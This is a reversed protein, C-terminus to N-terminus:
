KKIDAALGPVDEGLFHNQDKFTRATAGPLAERYRLMHDFPVVFDDESHYLIIEGAQKAFRELGDTRAFSHLPERPMGTDDFPTGLLVVRKISKQVSNESLYKVIFLAGLSHGVLVCENELLNFTKEFMVQWESYRAAHKNPMQPAYVEFDPGLDLYLDNKWDRKQKIWELKVEKAKLLDLFADRTGEFPSGGHIFLVQQAM